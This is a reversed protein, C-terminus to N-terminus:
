ATPRFPSSLPCPLPETTCGTSPPSSPVLSSTVRTASSHSPSLHIHDWLRAIFYVAELEHPGFTGIHTPKIAPGFAGTVTTSNSTRWRKLKSSFNRPCKMCFARRTAASTSSFLDIATVVNNFWFAKAFEMIGPTKAKDYLQQAMARVTTSLLYLIDESRRRQMDNKIAINSQSTLRRCFKFTRSQVCLTSVTYQVSILFVTGLLSCQSNLTCLVLLSCVALLCVTCEKWHGLLNEPRKNFLYNLNWSTEAAWPQLQIM